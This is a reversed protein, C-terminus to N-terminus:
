KRRGSALLEHYTELANFHDRDARLGVHGDPRIVLLATEGVGLKQAATPTIHVGGTQGNPETNLMVTEGVVHRSCTRRLAAELGAQEGTAPPVRHFLLATHETRHALEHLMRPRRDSDGIEVLKLTDPLRQGPGLAPHKDGFVIPSAS